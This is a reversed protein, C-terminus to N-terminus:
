STQVCHFRLVFMFSMQIENLSEFNRLIDNDEDMAYLYACIRAIM